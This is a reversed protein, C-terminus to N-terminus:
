NLGLRSAVDEFDEGREGNKVMETQKQLRERLDEKLELEDELDGFLDLLKEEIIDGIMQRLEIDTMQAVKVSM